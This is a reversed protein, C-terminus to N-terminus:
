KGLTVVENGHRFSMLMRNSKGFKIPSPKQDRKLNEINYDGPGPSISDARVLKSTSFNHTPGNRHQIKEIYEKVRSDIKNPHSGKRMLM